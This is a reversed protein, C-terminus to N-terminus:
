INTEIAIYLFDDNKNNVIRTNISQMNNILEYV